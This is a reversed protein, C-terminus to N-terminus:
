NDFLKTYKRNYEEIETAIQYSLMDEPIYDLYKIVTKQVPYKRGHISQWSDNLAKAIVYDRATKPNLPIEGNIILHDYLFTRTIDVTLDGKRTAGLYIDNPYIEGLAYSRVLKEKNEASLYRLSPKLFTQGFSISNISYNKM